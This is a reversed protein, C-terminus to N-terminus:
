DLFLRKNGTDHGNKGKVQCSGFYSEDIEIEGQFPSEMECFGAILERIAMLYRPITLRNLNTLELNIQM